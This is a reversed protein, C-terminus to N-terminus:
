HSSEDSSSARGDNDHSAPKDEARKARRAREANIAPFNKSGADAGDEPLFDVAGADAVKSALQWSSVLVDEGCGVGCAAVAALVFATARYQM